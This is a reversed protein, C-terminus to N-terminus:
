QQPYLLHNVSKRGTGRASFWTSWHKKHYKVLYVGAILSAVVDKMNWGHLYFALEEEGTWGLKKKTDETPVYGQGDKYFTYLEGDITVGRLAVEEVDEGWGITITGVKRAKIDKHKAEFEEFTPIKKQETKQAKKLIMKLVQLSHVTAEIDKTENPLTKLFRSTRFKKPSNQAVKLQKVLPDLRINNELLRIESKIAEIPDGGNDIEEKIMHLFDLLYVNNYINQANENINRASSPVGDKLETSNFLLRSIQHEIDSTAMNQRKQIIKMVKEKLTNEETKRKELVKSIPMTEAEKEIETRFANNASSTIKPIIMDDVFKQDISSAGWDDDLYKSISGAQLRKEALYQVVPRDQNDTVYEVRIDFGQGVDYIEVDRMKGTASRSSDKFSKKKKWNKFMDQTYPLKITPEFGKYIDFIRGRSVFGNLLETSRRKVLTGKSPTVNVEWEEKQGIPEDTVEFYAKFKRPIGDDRWAEETITEMNVRLPQVVIHKPHIEVVKHAVLPVGGKKMETKKMKIDTIYIDGLNFANEALLQEYISAVNQFTKESKQIYWEKYVAEPMFEGDVYIRAPFQYYTYGQQSWKSVEQQDLLVKHGFIHGSVEMRRTDPDYSVEPDEILILKSMTKFIDPVLTERAWKFALERKGAENSEAFQQTRFGEGVPVDSSQSFKMYKEYVEKAISDITPKFAKEISVRFQEYKQALSIPKKEKPEMSLELQEFREPLAEIIIKEKKMPEEKPQREDWIKQLQEMLYLVAKKKQSRSFEKEPFTPPEYGSKVVYGSTRIVYDSDDNMTREVERMLLASYDYDKDIYYSKVFPAFIGEGSLRVFKDSQVPVTFKKMKEKYLSDQM